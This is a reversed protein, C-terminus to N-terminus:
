VGKNYKFKLTSLLNPYMRLLHMIGHDSMKLKEKIEGVTQGKCLCDKIYNIKIEEYEM